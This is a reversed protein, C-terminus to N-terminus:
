SIQNFLADVILLDRTADNSPLLMMTEEEEHLNHAM